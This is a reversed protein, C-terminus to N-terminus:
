MYYFTPYRSVWVEVGESGRTVRYYYGRQKLSEAAAQAEKKTDYTGHLVFQKGDFTRERETLM